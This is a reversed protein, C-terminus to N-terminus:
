EFLYGLRDVLKIMMANERSGGGPSRSVTRGQQSRGPENFCGYADFILAWHGPQMM